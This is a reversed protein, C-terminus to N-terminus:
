FDISFFGSLDLYGLFQPFRMFEELLSFIHTSLTRTVQQTHMGLWLFIHTMRNFIKILQFINTLMIINTNSENKEFCVFLFVNMHITKTFGWIQRVYLNKKRDSLRPISMASHTMPWNEGSTNCISLFSIVNFSTCTIAFINLVFSGAM